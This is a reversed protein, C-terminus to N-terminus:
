GQPGKEPSIEYFATPSTEKIYSQIGKVISKCLFDQYSPDVLRKCERPNSIFSTEILISPMEAGILVYFPAQKVGKNKIHSYKKRMERYLAGQVYGALRSSENIKTNQMLDNLITQLDSINKTSTANELAAVRIAEEDTAFNLFFTEIGYAREDANANTHVSIFLDADRTNAIATREELTLYKDTSRTLVVDCGIEERILRALKRGITLVVNKEHVGKLYGPAGFDKGGHGPDIVIRRVGLRLQRVLDNKGIKEKSDIPPSVLPKAGSKSVDGWVDIVVRFPNRLDFIKYTNFSNIDVVVRVIDPRYQGARADILLKDQIPVKKPIKKSLRAQKLDIFLRQPKLNELDKKLLHHEYQTPNDLDIVVRTYRPNSWHRLNEVTVFSHPLPKKQVKVESTPKRKSADTSSAALKTAANPKHKNKKRKTSTNAKPPKIKKIEKVALSAYRSKPYRRVIRQYVDIAERKDSEKGSYHHLGKFLKGAKYLGAAAWPGDPDKRTVQQYKEICTLWNHRYQKKQPSKNLNIECREARLYQQKATLAYAAKPLPCISLSFFCLLVILFPLIKGM